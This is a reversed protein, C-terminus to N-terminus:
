DFIESFVILTLRDFGTSYNLFNLCDLNIFDPADMLIHLNLRLDSFSQFKLTFIVPFEAGMM